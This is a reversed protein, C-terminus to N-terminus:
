ESISFSSAQDLDSLSAWAANLDDKAADARAVFFNANQPNAQIAWNYALVDSMATTTRIYADNLDQACTPLTDRADEYYQRTSVLASFYLNINDPEGDWLGDDGLFAFVRIMSSINEGAAENYNEPLVCTDDQAISMLIPMGALVIFASLFLVGVRKM